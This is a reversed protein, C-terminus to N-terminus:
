HDNVDFDLVHFNLQLVIIFYRKVKNYFYVLLYMDTLNIFGLGHYIALMFKSM